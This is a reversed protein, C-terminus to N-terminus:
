RASWGAAFPHGDFIAKSCSLAVAHRAMDRFEEVAAILAACRAFLRQVPKTSKSDYVGQPEGFGRLAL